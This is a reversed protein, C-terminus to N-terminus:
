GHDADVDSAIEHVLVLGAVDPSEQALSAVRRQDHRPGDDDGTVRVRGCDGLDGLDDVLRGPRDDM